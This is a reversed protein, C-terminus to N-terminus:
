TIFYAYFVTNLFPITNWGFQMGKYKKTWGGGGGGWGGSNKCALKTDPQM